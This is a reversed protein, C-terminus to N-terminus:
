PIFPNPQNQREESDVKVQEPLRKPKRGRQYEQRDASRRNPQEIRRPDDGQHDDACRTPALDGQTAKVRLRSPEDEIDDAESEDRSDVPAAVEQAIGLAALGQNRLHQGESLGLRQIQLGQLEDVLLAAVPDVLYGAALLWFSSRYLGGLL